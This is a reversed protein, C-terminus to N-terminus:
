PKKVWDAAIERLDLAEFCDLPAVITVRNPLGTKRAFDVLGLVLLRLLHQPPLNLGTRGNGILPLAIPRGNGYTHITTLVSRLASWLYPISSSAKATALDTESLVFLYGEQRGLPLTVTTGIPYKTRPEFSRATTVGSVNALIADVAARFRAADSNFHRKILAGHVSNPSVIQGLQSDFFENVAVILDESQDFLDGYTITITTDTTPVLLSVSLPEWVQRVFAILGAGAIVLLYGVRHESVATKAADSVAFAIESFLWIVGVAGFAQTLAQRWRRRLGLAFARVFLM